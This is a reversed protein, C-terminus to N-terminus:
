NIGYRNEVETARDRAPWTLQSSYRGNSRKPLQTYIKPRSGLFLSVNESPNADKFLTNLKHFNEEKCPWRNESLLCVFAATITCDLICKNYTTTNFAVLAQIYERHSEEEESKDKKREIWHAEDDYYCYKVVVSTSRYWCYVFPPPSVIDAKQKSEQKNKPPAVTLINYQVTWEARGKVFM